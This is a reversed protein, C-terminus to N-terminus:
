KLLILRKNNLYCVASVYGLYANIEQKNIEDKLKSYKKKLEIKQREAEDEKIKENLLKNDIDALEREFSKYLIERQADYFQITGATISEQRIQLFRLEEDLRELDLQSDKKMKDLKLKLLDFQLKEM